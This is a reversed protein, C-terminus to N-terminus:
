VCRFFPNLVSLTSVDKPHDQVELKTWAMGSGSTRVGVDPTKWLKAMRIAQGQKNLFWCIWTVISFQLECTEGLLQRPYSMLLCLPIQSFNWWAYAIGSVRQYVCLLRCLFHRLRFQQHLWWFHHIQGYNHSLKGTALVGSVMGCMRPNRENLPAGPLHCWVELVVGSIRGTM